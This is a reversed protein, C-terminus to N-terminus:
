NYFRLCAQLLIRQSVGHLDKQIKCSKFLPHVVGHTVTILIGRQILDQFQSVDKDIRNPGFESVCCLVITQFM